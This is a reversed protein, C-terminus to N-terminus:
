QLHHKQLVAAAQPQALWIQECVVVVVVLLTVVVVRPSLWISLRQQPDQCSV